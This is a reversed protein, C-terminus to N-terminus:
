SRAPDASGPRHVAQDVDSVARVVAEQLSSCYRTPAPEVGDVPHEGRRDPRRLRDEPAVVDDADVVEGDVARLDVIRDPGQVDVARADVRAHEAQDGLVPAQQQRGEGHRGHDREGHQEREHQQPHETGERETAHELEAPGRHGRHGVVPGHSQACV